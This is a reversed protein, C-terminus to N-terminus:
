RFILPSRDHNGISLPFIPTIVPIVEGHFAPQMKAMVSKRRFIGTIDALSAVLPM